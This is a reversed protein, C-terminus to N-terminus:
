GADRVEEVQHRAVVMTGRAVDISRVSDRVAPVLTEEGDPARVVFIDHQPLAEVDVLEGVARGSDDVVTLGVLQFHFYEDPPLARAQARDVELYGGSLRGAATRDDVGELKCLVDAGSARAWSVALPGVATHVRLGPQLRDADGGLLEVVLVGALGHPRRVFAARLRDPETM